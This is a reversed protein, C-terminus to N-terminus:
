KEVPEEVTQNMVSQAVHCQTSSQVERGEGGKFQPPIDARSVPPSKQAAQPRIRAGAGVIGQFKIPAKPAGDNDM